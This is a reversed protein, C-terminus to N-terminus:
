IMSDILVFIYNFCPTLKESYPMFWSILKQSSSRLFEQYPRREETDIWNHERMLVETLPNGATHFLHITAQFYIKWKDHLCAIKLRNDSSFKLNDWFLEIYMMKNHIPTPIRRHSQFFFVNSHRPLTRLVMNLLFHHFTRLYTGQWTM